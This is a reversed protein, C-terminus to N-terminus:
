PGLHEELPFGALHQGVAAGEHRRQGCSLGLPERDELPVYTGNAFVFELDEDLLLRNPFIPGEADDKNSKSLIHEM